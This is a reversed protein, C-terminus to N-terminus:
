AFLRTLAHLTIWSVVGIWAVTVGAAVWLVIPAWDPVHRGTSEAVIQDERMSEDRFMM